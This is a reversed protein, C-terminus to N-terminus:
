ALLAAFGTPTSTEGGVILARNPGCCVIDEPTQSTTSTVKDVDLKGGEPLFWRGSAGKDVNRYVYQEAGVSFSTFTTTKVILYLVGCGCSVIEKIITEGATSTLGPLDDQQSWTEGGDSSEWLEGDDNGVLIHRENLIYLGWLNDTPSPGTLAFWTEGGNETKAIANSDGVAYAVLPNNRAIKINNYDQTTVIGADLTEWDSGQNTSGYIYGNEGVALLWAQTIADMKTVPNATMDASGAIATLTVGQDLSRVFASDNNNDGVVLIFDGLCIVDRADDGDFETIAYDTWYSPHGGRTNVMLHATGAAVLTSVIAIVCETESDCRGACREGHCVSAAVWQAAISEPAQDVSVATRYISIVDSSGTVAMTILNETDDADFTSGQDTRDTIYGGCIRRIKEWANYQDLDKCHTRRDIHWPCNELEDAKEDRQIEKMVLETTPLGPLGRVVGTIQVGTNRPDQCYTPNVSGRPKAIDGIRMCQGGWEFVEFDDAPSLWVTNEQMRIVRGNDPM